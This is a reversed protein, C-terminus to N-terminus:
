SNGYLAEYIASAGQYPLSKTAVIRGHSDFGKAFIETAVIGRTDLPCPMALFLWVEKSGAANSRKADGLLVYMDPPIETGGQFLGYGSELFIRVV